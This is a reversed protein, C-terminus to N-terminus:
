ISLEGECEGQGFVWQALTAVACRNRYGVACLPIVHDADYGAAKSQGAGVLLCIFQPWDEASTQLSTQVRTAWGCHFMAGCSGAGLATCYNLLLNKWVQRNSSVCCGLSLAALGCAAVAFACFHWFPGTMNVAGEPVLKSITLQEIPSCTCLYALPNPKTTTKKIM